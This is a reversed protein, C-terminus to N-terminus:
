GYETSIHGSKLIQTHYGNISERPNRSHSESCLPTPLFPHSQLLIRYKFHSPKSLCLSLRMRYRAVAVKEFLCFGDKDEFAPIKGSAFKNLYAPTLNTTHHDYDKPIDFKLDGLAAISHMKSLNNYSDLQIM